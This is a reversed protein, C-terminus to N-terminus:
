RTKVCIKQENKESEHCLANHSILHWESESRGSEGFDSAVSKLIFDVDTALCIPRGLFGIGCGNVIGDFLPDSSDSWDV